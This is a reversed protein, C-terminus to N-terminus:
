TRLPHVISGLPRWVRSRFHRLSVWKLYVTNVSSWSPSSYRLGLRSALRTTTANWYDAAADVLAARQPRPPPCRILEAYDDCVHVGPMEANPLLDECYLACGNLPAQWMRGSLTRARQYPYMVGFAFASRRYIHQCDHLSAPGHMRSFPVPTLPSWGDGWFHCEGGAAIGDMRTLWGDQMPNSKRHGIHVFEYIAASQRRRHPARWLSAVVPPVSEIVDTPASTGSVQATPAIVLCQQVNPFAAHFDSTGTAVYDYVHCCQARAQFVEGRYRGRQIVLLDCDLPQPSIQPSFGCATYFAVLNALVDPDFGDFGVIVCRPRKM